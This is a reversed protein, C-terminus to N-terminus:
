GWSNPSLEPRASTDGTLIAVELNLGKLQEVAKAASEKLTDMVVILGVSEGDVALIMVTKGQTELSILDAETDSISVGEEPMLMRNRLLVKRNGVICKGCRGPSAELSDTQVINVIDSKAKTLIAEAL